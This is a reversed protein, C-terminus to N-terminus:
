KFRSKYVAIIEDLRRRDKDDDRLMITVIKSPERVIRKRARDNWRGSADVVTLGDPFRSSIERDLFRSWQAESVGLRDGINRGFMLEAVATEKQPLRCELAVSAGASSLLLLLSLFLRIPM